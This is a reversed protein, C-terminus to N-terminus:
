KNNSKNIVSMIEGEMLVTKIEDGNKVIDSKKLAKGNYYTISYGRKLVNVPDLLRCKDNIHEIKLYKKNFLVPIINRMENIKDILVLSNFKIIKDPFHKIANSNNNLVFYKNQINTRASSISRMKLLDLESEGKQIFRHTNSIILRSVENIKSRSDVIIDNSNLIIKKAYEETRQSFSSFMGLLYFAVDTPTILNRFAVMETVTENTSHGIGTIVPLPFEAIEGAIKINDYCSLGIDGGGGRLILVADFYQHAKKIIQLQNYISSVAADGQLISPYLKYFMKFYHQYENLKSIFDALGKSTNVSIIALRRPLLPLSLMKNKVFVGKAKLINITEKKERAMEGLTFSPEINLINLSLGYVPDFNLRAYFLIKIGDRLNEGTVKVFENKINTFDNAWIISRLQAKIKGGDKEVLDPYCHGSKPYFNLKAIEAKIWYAHEYKKKIVSAISATVEYLTHVSRVQGSISIKEM